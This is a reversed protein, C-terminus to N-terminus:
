PQQLWRCLREFVIQYWPCGVVMEVSSLPFFFFFLLSWAGGSCRIFAGTGSEWGKVARVVLGRGGERNPEARRGDRMTEDRSRWPGARGGTAVPIM